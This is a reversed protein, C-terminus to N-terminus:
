DNYYIDTSIAYLFVYACCMKLPFENTIKTYIWSETYLLIVFHLNCYIIATALNNISIQCWRSHLSCIIKYSIEFTTQMKLVSVHLQFFFHITKKTFIVVNHTVSILCELLQISRAYLASVCIM